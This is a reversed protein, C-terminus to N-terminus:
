RLPFVNLLREIYEGLGPSVVEKGMSRVWAKKRLIWIVSDRVGNGKLDSNDILSDRMIWWRYICNLIRSGRM